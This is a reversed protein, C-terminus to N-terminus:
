IESFHGRGVVERQGRIGHARLLRRVCQRHVHAMRATQRLKGVVVRDGVLRAAHLRLRQLVLRLGRNLPDGRSTPQPPIGDEFEAARVAARPDRQEGLATEGCDRRTRVHHQVAEADHVFWVLAASERVPCLDGFGAPHQQQLVVRDDRDDTLTLPIRQPVPM